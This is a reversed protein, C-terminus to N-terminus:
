IIRVGRMLSALSYLYRGGAPSGGQVSCEALGQKEKKARAKTGLNECEGPIAAQGYKDPDAKIGLEPERAHRRLGHSAGPRCETGKKLGEKVVELLCELGGAREVEEM